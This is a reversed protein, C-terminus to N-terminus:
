MWLEDARLMFCGWVVDLKRVYGFGLGSHIGNMDVM